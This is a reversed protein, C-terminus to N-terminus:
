NNTKENTIGGFRRNRNQYELFALACEEENFDPFYVKPFYYEAYASQWLMFNSIRQEGSTRIVFDLPPLDQYLNKEVLDSNIDEIKLGQELVLNCIKKTMDVLETQGGYNLCINFTGETNNKTKETIYDMTKLVKDSLPQRSGSFVVKIGLNNLFDFEKEFYLIFLNMLGDVEDPSRNFNETSFAYVSLYPIGLKFIYLCLKKLTKAGEQHGALRKLGRSTAWRGNGDMIIGMHNPLKVSTM